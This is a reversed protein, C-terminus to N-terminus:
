SKPDKENLMRRLRRDADFLFVDIYSEGVSVSDNSFADVYGGQEALPQIVDKLQRLQSSFLLPSSIEAELDLLKLWMIEVALLFPEPFGSVQAMTDWAEQAIANQEPIEM